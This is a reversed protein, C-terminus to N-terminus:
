LDLGLENVVAKTKYFQSGGEVDFALRTLGRLSRRGQGQQILRYAELVKGIEWNSVRENKESYIRPYTKQQQRPQEIMRNIIPPQPLPTAQQTPAKWYPVFNESDPDEQEYYPVTVAFSERRRNDRYVLPRQQAEALQPANDTAFAGLWITYNFNKLVASEGDIGLTKVLISQTGLIIFMNFKRGERLLRRWISLIEDAAQRNGTEDRIENVLAPLEDVLITMPYFGLDGGSTDERRRKRREEYEKEVVQFFSVIEEYPSDGSGIVKAWHWSGYRYHPDVIYIDGSMNVRQKSLHRLVSSKGSGSEGIALIHKELKPMEMEEIEGELVPIEATTANQENRPSPLAAQRGVQMVTGDPQIITAFTRGDGLQHVEVKGARRSLQILRFVLTGVFALVGLGILIGLPIIFWNVMRMRNIDELQAARDNAATLREHEVQAARYVRTSELDNEMRQIEILNLQRQHEIAAERERLEIEGLQQEYVATAAAAAQTTAEYAVATEQAIMEAQHQAAIEVADLTARANAEQQEPLLTPSPIYPQPQCAANLSIIIIAIVVQLHKAKM